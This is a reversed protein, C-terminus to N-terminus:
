TYGFFAIRLGHSGSAGEGNARTEAKYETGEIFGWLYCHSTPLALVATLLNCLRPLGSSQVEFHEQDDHMRCSQM